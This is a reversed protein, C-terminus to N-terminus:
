LMLRNITPRLADALVQYGAHTPHLGDESLDKSLTGAADLLALGPNLFTLRDLRIEALERNVQEIRRRLPSGVTAGRPLLGTLLIDAAPVAAQVGKVVAVVGEVTQEVTNVVLNNTGISVLVLRPAIGALEGNEIRWLVNEARDYGFGLNIARMSGFLSTWVDDAIQLRADRPEGAFWHVISDGIWVVDISPTKIAVLVAEHRALWDYKGRDRDQTEPM